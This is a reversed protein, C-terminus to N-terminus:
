WPTYRLGLQVLAWVGLVALGAICFPV